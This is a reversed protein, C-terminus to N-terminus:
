YSMKVYGKSLLFEAFEWDLPNDLDLSSIDDMVYKRIKSFNEIPKNLISQINIIYIAGNYQWVDPCDQRRTIRSPKSKELYGYNNEEYLSYYPNADAKKVSVVMDISNDYLKIAEAIHQEKRFPSTPQLLIINDYNKGKNKYFNIAHILVETSTTTDSALYSPRIFPVNLKYQNAIEIYKPSDTSLCIDDDESFKRALTISYYILPKGALLKINKDPINKSGSRAPIVFLSKM